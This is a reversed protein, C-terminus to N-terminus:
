YKRETYHNAEKLLTPNLPVCAASFFCAQQAPQLRLGEGSSVGGIPLIWGKLLMATIKSGSIPNQHGEPNLFNKIVIVYDVKYSSTSDRVTQAHRCRLASPHPSFLLAPFLISVYLDPGSLNSVWAFGPAARCVGAAEIAGSLRFPLLSFKSLWLISTTTCAKCM